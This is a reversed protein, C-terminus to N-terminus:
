QSPCQRGEERPVYIIIRDAPFTQDERYWCLIPRVVHRVWANNEEGMYYDSGLYNFRLPDVIIAAFRQSEMDQEFRELYTINNAMAMEMLDEREYEPILTAGEIMGMSMLHRQTIFLVEGETRSVRGQIAALTAQSEAQDYRVIGSNPLHAFWVPILVLLAVVQWPIPQAARFFAYVAVILLMVAYADMNHLDGGGGIKTSVLLGGLFLVLLITFIAVSEIVPKTISEPVSQFASVRIKSASIVILIWIPLSFLLIGPLVGLFYTANLWLRYWLLDSTLSTFFDGPQNGSLPIYVQSVAYALLSGSITWAAPRGLRSFLFSFLSRLSILPKPIHSKYELLWLVSLILGPMPYWNLRSLGAWISTAILLIWTRRDDDARFLWLLPFVMLPLHLYLPLIFLYVFIWTFLAFKLARNEIKFRSLLAPAILGVLLFRIGVQWARHFWLPADFWYPPALLLHLSPHLIPWPYPQGYIKESLFLSPFYFRSTESWGLAFPYDTLAPLYSATLNLTSQLLLTLALAPAFALNPRAIKLAYMGTIALLWFIFFRTAGGGFLQRFEPLAYLVPFIFLVTLFAAFAVFRFFGGARSVAELSSFIRLRYRTFTLALASSASIITLTFFTVIGLITKSAFPSVGFKEALQLADAIALGALLITFALLIRWFTSQSPSTMSSNYWDTVIPTHFNFLM